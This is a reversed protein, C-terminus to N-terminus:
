NCHPTGTCGKRSVRSPGRHTPKLAFVAFDDIIGGFGNAGFAKPDFATIAALGDEFGVEVGVELDAGPAAAVEADVGFVADGVEEFGAIVEYVEVEAGGVGEVEGVELGVLSAESFGLFLGAEVVGDDVGGAVHPCIGDDEGYHFVGEDAAAHAGDDTFGDGAGDIAGVVGAAGEDDDRGGAACAHHFADCAEHLEGFDGCGEGAQGGDADGVDGDEGVGGGAADSGAEGHEAVQIDGFGVGEDAKGAGADDLLGDALLEGLAELAGFEEELM